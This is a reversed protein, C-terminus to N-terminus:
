AHAHIRIKLIEDADHPYFIHKVLNEDWCKSRSMFLNSVWKLRTNDRM